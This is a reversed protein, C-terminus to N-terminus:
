ARLESYVMARRHPEGTYNLVHAEILTGHAFKPQESLALSLRITRKMRM